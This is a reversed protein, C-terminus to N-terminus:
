NFGKEKYYKEVLSDPDEMVIYHNKCGYRSCISVRGGISCRFSVIPAFCQDCEVKRRRLNKGCYPCYFKAISGEKISIDSSYNYDGYISSLWIEGKTGTDTKIKLYISQANNIFNTDDMLTHGCYPCSVEVEIRKKM